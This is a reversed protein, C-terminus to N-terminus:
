PMGGQGSTGLQWSKVGLVSLRDAILNISHAGASRDARIHVHVKDAGGVETITHGVIQVLRDMLVSEGGVFYRGEASVDITLSARSAEPLSEGKVEPLDVRTRAERSFTSTFMFFIILLMVVDIMPTMDFVGDGAEIRRTRTM